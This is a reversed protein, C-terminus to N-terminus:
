PLLEWCHPLIDQAQVECLLSRSVQRRGTVGFLYSLSYPYALLFLVDVLRLRFIGSTPLSRIIHQQSGCEHPIKCVVLRM